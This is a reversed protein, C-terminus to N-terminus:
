NFQSLELVHVLPITLEDSDRKCTHNIGDAAGVVEGVWKGVYGVTTGDYLGDTLKSGDENSGLLVGDIDGVTRGDVGVLTGMRDGVRKGTDLRGLKAPKSEHTCRLVVPNGFRNM